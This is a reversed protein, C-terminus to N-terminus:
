MEGPLCTAIKHLNDLVWKDTKLACSKRGGKMKFIIGDSHSCSSSSNRYCQIKKLPIAKKVFRFCCNSSSVHLSWSNVDQLCMGGLLLCVLALTILKMAPQQVRGEAVEGLPRLNQSTEWTCSCILIKFYHTPATGQSTSFPSHSSTAEKRSRQDWM